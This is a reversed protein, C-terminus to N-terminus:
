ILSRAIEYRRDELQAIMRRANRGPQGLGEYGSGHIRGARWRKAKTAISTRFGHVYDSRQERLDNRTM